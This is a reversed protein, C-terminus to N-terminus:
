GAAAAAAAAAAVAVAVPRGALIVVDLDPSQHLSIANTTGTADRRGAWGGWPNASQHSKSNILM